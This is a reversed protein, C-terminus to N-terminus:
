HTVFHVPDALLLIINYYVMASFESTQCHEGVYNPTCWCSVGNEKSLMRIGGNECKFRECKLNINRSNTRVICRSFTNIIRYIFIIQVHTEAESLIPFSIILSDIFFVRQNITISNKRCILIILVWDVWIRFKRIVLFLIISYFCFEISLLIVVHM